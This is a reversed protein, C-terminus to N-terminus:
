GERDYESYRVAVTNAWRGTNGLRDGWVVDVHGLMEALRRPDYPPRHIPNKRGGGCHECCPLTQHPMYPHNVEPGLGPPARDLENRFCLFLMLRHWLSLLSVSM